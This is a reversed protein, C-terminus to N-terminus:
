SRMDGASLYKGLLSGLNQPTIKARAYKVGKEIWQKMNPHQEKFDMVTINKAPINVLKMLMPLACQSVSGFGIILVKNGFQKM